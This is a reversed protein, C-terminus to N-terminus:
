VTEPKAQRARKKRTEKPDAILHRYIEVRDGPRLPHQLEVLKSFVGIRQSGLDIEAFRGLLGSERIADEVTAGQGVRVPVIVQIDPRAYAVEVEFVEVGAM